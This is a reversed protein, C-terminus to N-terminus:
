SQKDVGIDKIGQQVAYGSNGINGKEYTGGNIFLGGKDSVV